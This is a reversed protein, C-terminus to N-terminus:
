RPVAPAEEGYVVSFPKRDASALHWRDASMSLADTKCSSVCQGCYICRDTRYRFIFKKAARDVVKVQIADAPCDRVCAMCGTCKGMDYDLAGRTSRPAPVVVFPYRVTFPRTFLSALVDSFMSGIRMM